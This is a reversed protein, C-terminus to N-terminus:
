GTYLWGPDVRVVGVLDKFTCHMKGFGRLNARPSDMLRMGIPFRRIQIRGKVVRICFLLLTSKVPIPTQTQPSLYILM